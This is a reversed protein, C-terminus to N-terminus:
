LPSFVHMSCSDVLPFFVLKFLNDTLFTVVLLVERLLIEMTIGGVILNAQLWLGPWTEIKRSLVYHVPNSHTLEVPFLVEVTLKLVGGGRWGRGRM